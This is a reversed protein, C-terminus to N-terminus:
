PATPQDEGTPTAPLARGPGCGPVAPPRGAGPLRSYGSGTITLRIGASAAPSATAPHPLPSATAPIRRRAHPPPSRASLEVGSAADRTVAVLRPSRSSATPPPRRSVDQTARRPHHLRCCLLNQGQWQPNSDEGGLKMEPYFGCTVPKHGPRLHSSTCSTIVSQDCGRSLSPTRVRNMSSVTAGTGVQCNPSAAGTGPRCQGPVHRVSPNPEPDVM